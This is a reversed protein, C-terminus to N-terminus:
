RKGGIPRYASPQFQPKVQRAPTKTKMQRAPKESLDHHAHWFADLVDWPKSEPDGSYRVLARKLIATTGQTLVARATELPQILQTLREHKSRGTSGAKGTAFKPKWDRPIEGRDQLNRLAERAVSLWADGGTDTEIGVTSAELEYAWRIARELADTPTTRAEWARLAYVTGAKRGKPAATVGAAVIGMSDANDSDSTAPDVWVQRDIFLEWPVDDWDVEAFEIHSFVRGEPPEQEHQYEVLFARLNSLNLSQQAAKLDFGPWTPRGGTIQWMREDPQDPNPVQAVELGEVAPVPGILKRNLLLRDEEPFKSPWTLSAAISRQNPINEIFIILVDPSGAPFITNALTERRKATLTPSDHMGDVDDVIVLDPRLNDYKVGRVATDLGVADMLFGRARIRQQTFVHQLGAGVKQEQVRRAAMEPIDAVLQPSLMLRGIDGVAENAKAQTARVYLGYRRRRHAGLMVAALEATTTKGGSRNLIMVVPQTSQGAVVGWLHNWFELHHAGLPATMDSPFYYRLAEEPDPFPWPRPPPPKGQLEALRTVLDVYRSREHETLAAYEEATLLPSRAATSASM